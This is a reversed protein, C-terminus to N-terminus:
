QPAALEKLAALNKLTIRGRGLHVLGAEEWKCLIKNVSERSIGLHEAVEKQSLRIEVLSAKNPNPSAASSFALLHKALRCPLSMFVVDELLEDARRIRNCLVTLLHIAQAPHRNLFALFDRRELVLLESAEMATADASREGGDLVAIEGLLEGAGLIAYTAERGEISITGIRILGSVVIYLREGLDGKMFLTENAGVRVLNVKEALEDLLPGPINSFLKTRAILERRNPPLDIM